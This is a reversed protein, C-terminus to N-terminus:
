LPNANWKKCERCRFGSCQKMWGYFADCYLCIVKRLTLDHAVLIQVM